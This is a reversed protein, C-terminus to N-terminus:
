CFMKLPNRNIQFQFKFPSWPFSGFRLTPLDPPTISKNQPLARSRWLWQNCRWRKHPYWHGLDRTLQPSKVARLPNLIQWGRKSTGTGQDVGSSLEQHPVEFNVNASTDQFQWMRYLEKWLKQQGQLRQYGLSMSKGIKGKGSSEPSVLSCSHSVNM